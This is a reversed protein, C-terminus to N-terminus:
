PESEPWVACLAVAAPQRILPDPDGVVRSLAKSLVERRALPNLSPEALATVALRRTFGNPSELADLWQPLAAGGMAYLADSAARGIDTTPDDLLKRVRAAAPRAASRYGALKRLAEIRDALSGTEAARVLRDVQAASPVVLPPLKQPLLLPALPIGTIERRPHPRPQVMPPWDQYVPPPGTEMAAVQHSRALIMAINAAHRVLIEPDSQIALALVPIIEAPPQSRALALAAEYREIPEGRALRDYLVDAGVGENVDIAAWTLGTASCSYRDEIRMVARLAPIAGPGIAVLAEAAHTRMPESNGLASVLTPAAGVARQGLRKLEDCAKVRDADAFAPSDVAKALVEVLPEPDDRPGAAHLLAGSVPLVLLVASLLMRRLNILHM